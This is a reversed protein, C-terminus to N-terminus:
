QSMSMSTVPYNCTRPHAADAFNRLGCAGGGSWKPARSGTRLSVCANYSTMEAKM